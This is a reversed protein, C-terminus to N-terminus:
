PQIGVLAGDLTAFATSRHNGIRRCFRKQQFHYAPLTIVLHGGITGKRSSFDTVKFKPNLLTSDIRFRIFDDSTGCLMPRELGNFLMTNGLDFITRPNTIGYIGEDKRLQFCCANCRRLLSILAGKDPPDRKIQSAQGGRKRFACEVKRIIGGIGVLVHDVTIQGRWSIAFAPATMPKIDCAIRIGVAQIFINRM